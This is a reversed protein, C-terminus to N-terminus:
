RETRHCWDDADDSGWTLDFVSEVQDIYSQSVEFSAIESRVEQQDKQGSLIDKGREHPDIVHAQVARFIVHRREVSLRTAVQDGESGSKSPKQTATVITAKESNAM